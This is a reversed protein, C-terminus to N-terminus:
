VMSILVATRNKKSRHDGVPIAALRRAVVTRQVPLYVAQVMRAVAALRRVAARDMRVAVMRRDASDPHTVDQLAESVVDLHTEESASIMRLINRLCVEEQIM